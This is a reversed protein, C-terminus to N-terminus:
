RASSRGPSIMGVVHALTAVVTRARVGRAQGAQAVPGEQRVVDIVTVEPGQAQQVLVLDAQAEQVVPALADERDVAIEEQHVLPDAAAARAVVERAEPVVANRDASRRSRM